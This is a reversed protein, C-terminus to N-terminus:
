LPFYYKVGVTAKISNFLTTFLTGFAAGLQANSSDDEAEVGYLSMWFEVGFDIGFKGKGCDWIPYDGGMRAYVSKYFQSWDDIESSLCLGIETTFNDYGIMFYPIGYAYAEKISDSRTPILNGYGRVGGGVYFSNDFLYYANADLGLYPKGVISVAAETGVSMNVGEEAFVAGTLAVAAILAIILKKM